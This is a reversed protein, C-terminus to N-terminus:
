RRVDTATPALVVDLSLMVQDEVWAVLSASGLEDAPLTARLHARVGDRLAEQAEQVWRWITVRHVQYIAAVDDVTAGEVFLLRVLSRQRRSLALCAERLANAVAESSRARLPEIVADTAGLQALADSWEVAVERNSREKRLAHLALRAACMSAWAGLPARGDFRALRPPAGEGLLLHIRLQQVVEETRADDRLYRQITSRSSAMVDREFAAVAIPDGGAAAHALALEAGRAALDEPAPEIHAAALSAALDADTVALGPWRVRAADVASRLDSPPASVM